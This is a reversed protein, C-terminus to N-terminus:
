RPGRSGGGGLGVGRMSPINLSSDGLVVEDGENLGELIQASVRNNIGVRVNREEVGGSATKVRVYNRKTKPDTLLAASPIILTNKAEDRVINVEATMSIRFTGETNPVDFLGNYYVAANSSSSSSSVSESVISEPAPEIARLVADFKRNPEGLITFYVRQGARVRTVDAESIEAKVTMTSLDAVKIITPATQNANVTQGEKTVIAVVTGDMPSTISTYGLDVQATNVDVEAQDLQAQLAKINAQVSKYQADAAEFDSKSSADTRRLRVQRDYELKAKALAAKEAELKAQVVTLAAQANKLRNQQTLSDIEAVLDGTKLQDNLDVHLTLVRGSVQAGVSVQKFAEFTGSALVADELDGRQVTVTILQPAEPVSFFKNNAFWLIGLGVCAIIVWRVWSKKKQVM